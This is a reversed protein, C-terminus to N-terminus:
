TEDRVLHDHLAQMLPEQKKFASVLAKVADSDAGHEALIKPLNELLDGDSRKETMDQLPLVPLLARAVDSVTTLADGTVVLKRIESTDLQIRELPANADHSAVSPTLLVMYVDWAKPNIKTLKQDLYDVLQAQYDSWRNLIDHVTETAVVFVIGFEDEALLAEEIEVGELDVANVVAYDSQGLVRAAESLISSVTLSSSSM